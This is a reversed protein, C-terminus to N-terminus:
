KEGMWGAIVIGTEEGEGREKDTKMGGRGKEGRVV